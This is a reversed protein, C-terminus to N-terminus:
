SGSAVAAVPRTLAAYSDDVAKDLFQALAKALKGWWPNTGTIEVEWVPAGEPDKINAVIFYKDNGIWGEKMWTLGVLGTPGGPLRPGAGVTVRVHGTGDVWGRGLVKVLLAADEARLAPRVLTRGQLHKAVDKVSDDVDKQSMTGFLVGDRAELFARAATEQDAGLATEYTRKASQYTLLLRKQVQKKESEEIGHVGTIGSAFVGLPAKGDKEAALAGGPILLILWALARKM